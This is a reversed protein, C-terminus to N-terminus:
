WREQVTRLAGNAVLFRALDLTDQDDPVDREAGAPLGALSVLWPLVSKPYTSSKGHTAVLVTGQSEHWLRPAHGAVAVRRPDPAAKHEPEAGALGYASAEALASARSAEAGLFARYGALWESSVRGDPEAVFPYTGEGAVFSRTYRAINVAFAPGVTEAVHWTGPDWTFFEGASAILSVGRDVVSSVPLSPLYEEPDVANSGEAERRDVSRPIWDEGHWFHMYKRGQLVFHSNGCQERHIGGPTARYDGLFVEIDINGSVLGHEEFVPRGFASLLLEFLARDHSALERAYLLIPTEPGFKQQMRTLWQDPSETGDSAPMVSPDSFVEDGVTIKILERKDDGALVARVAGTVGRWVAGPTVAACRWGEVRTNRTTGPAQVVTMLTTTM